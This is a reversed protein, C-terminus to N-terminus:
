MYLIGYRGSRDYEAIMGKNNGHLFYVWSSKRMSGHKLNAISKSEVRYITGYKFEKGTKKELMKEFNKITTKIPKQAM